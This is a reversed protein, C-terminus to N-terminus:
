FHLLVPFPVIQIHLLIYIDVHNDLDSLSRAYGTDRPLDLVGAPDAKVRAELEALEDPMMRTLEGTMEGTKPDFELAM